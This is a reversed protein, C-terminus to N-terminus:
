IKDNEVNRGNILKFIQSLGKMLRKYIRCRYLNFVKLMTLSSPGVIIINYLMWGDQDNM